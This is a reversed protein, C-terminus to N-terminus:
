VSKKLRFEFKMKEGNRDIVLRIKKNDREQFKAIINSLTYTHAAKRNLSIIKDGPKLGAKDAPSNKVVSKIKYTPKFRFQYRTVFSITNKINTEENYASNFNRNTKEEKVLERGAYVVDLGSMNYYFKKRFSSNKKFTIQRHPYDVWVTFRSLMGAGISGNRYKFNRSAKTSITDLFSVTPNPIKFDGLVFKPIRSRNGYITGSLGEGLIDRFHKIPTKINKDSYEFLWLADSGGTDILLKVEQLSDGVTDLQVKAKLYPKRKYYKLETTFCKKCKRYKFNDPKYFIIRNTRYNIKVVFNKFVSYGIIGHITTGMKGSLDHFDKLVVYISEDISILQKINVRNNRSIIASVAKGGGLGRLTVKETNMLSISDKSSLNFLITKNVGTDLIFSLEKGNITVPIVILNNIKKFSLSVKESNKNKFYFGTQSYTNDFLIIVFLFSLVLKFKM